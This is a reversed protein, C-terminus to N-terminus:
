QRERGGAFHLPLLKGRQTWIPPRREIRLTGAQRWLTQSLDAAVSGRGLEELVVEVIRAEEDLRVKPDVLLTLRTFGRADEEELLQYDLPSGGFRAPLVQELIVIMEGGLLTVGDGSLKRFSRVQHLHRTFGCQELLCGCTREEVVGYDDIEVNLRQVADRDM